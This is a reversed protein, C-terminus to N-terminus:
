NTRRYQHFSVWGGAIEKFQKAVNVIRAHQAETVATTLAIKITTASPSRRWLRRDGGTFESGRKAMPGLRLLCAGLM